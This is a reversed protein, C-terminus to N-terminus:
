SLSAVNVLRVKRDPLTIEIDEVLDDLLVCECGSLAAHDRVFTLFGLDKNFFDFFDPESVTNRGLGRKREIARCVEPVTPILAEDVVIGLGRELTPLITRFLYPKDEAGLAASFIGIRSPAEAALFRRVAQVRILFPEGFSEIVTEELDLFVM